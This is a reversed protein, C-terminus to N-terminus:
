NDGGPFMENLLAKKIDKLKSLKRQHLTILSDLENMLNGIISQEEREEPYAAKNDVLITFHRKYGEAMPKYRELMYYFFKQPLQYINGLIRIGDTSVLFPSFPRYLSLTHDGFLVVDKYELFPEKNSKGVIPIDGQQVVIYTGSDEVSAIYNKFPHTYIIDGLKRQEWEGDFGRFRLAPVSEGEAPFMKVLLAKKLDQLKSLKRQHLTILADISCLIGAVKKQERYEPLLFEFSGYQKANIGPQGSRQSATAVFKKYSETLTNQFVFNADNGGTVKVRILFGAFFVKGDAMKYIYTKGVSAGTRAFVIEGEHMQYVQSTNLDASPSMLDDTKFVHTVDDIDTIRLYKNIGDFQTAAANLGYQFDTCVEELKRQEWEGEYGEFRLKPVNQMNRGTM